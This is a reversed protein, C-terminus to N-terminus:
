FLKVRLGLYNAYALLVLYVVIVILVLWILVTKITENKKFVLKLVNYFLVGLVGGITNLIIDDIDTIGIAFIFQIVEVLLSTFFVTKIVNKPSPNESLLLLVTGLPIFILINGIVNLVVIPNGFGSRAVYNYISKFPILSLARVTERNDSFLEMPTIFKFFLIKAMILFYVILIGYFIIEKLNVKNRSM